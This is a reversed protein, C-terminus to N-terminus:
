WKKLDYVLRIGMQLVPTAYDPNYLETFFGTDPSYSGGKAHQKKFRIGLGAYYELRLRKDSTLYSWTGGKITLGFANKIYHFITKEEYSPVGDVIDRGLWDNFQYSVHKYHLEAEFYGRRGNNPYFRIFPRLIYGRCHKSDRLYASYFIYAADMGFSWQQAFKYEAGASANEDYPDLLGLFNFRAAIKKSTDIYDDRYINKEHRMRDYDYWGKSSSQAEAINCSIILLFASTLSNIKM